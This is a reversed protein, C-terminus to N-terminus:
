IATRRIDCRHRCGACHAPAHAAGAHTSKMGSAKTQDIIRHLSLLLAHLVTYTCATCLSQKATGHLVAASKICSQALTADARARRKKRRARAERDKRGICKTLTACFLATAHECTKCPRMFNMVLAHHTGSTTRPVTNTGADGSAAAPSCTTAVTM